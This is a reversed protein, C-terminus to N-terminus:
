IKGELETIRAASEELRQTLDANKDKYKAVETELASIRPELTEIVKQQLIEYNLKLLRIAGELASPLQDDTLSAVGNAYGAIPLLDRYVDAVSQKLDEERQVAAEYDRRLQPLEAALKARASETNDKETGLTALETRLASIRGDKDFAKTKTEALESELKNLKDRLPEVEAQLTLNAAHMETAITNASSVLSRLKDAAAGFTLRRYEARQSDDEAFIDLHDYVRSAGVSETIRKLRETRQAPTFKGFDDRELQDKALNLLADSIATECREIDTKASRYKTTLISTYGRFERLIETLSDLKELESRPKKEIGNGNSIGNSGNTTGTVSDDYSFHQIILSKFGDVAIKYERVIKKLEEKGDDTTFRGGEVNVIRELTDILKGLPLLETHEAILEILKAAVLKYKVLLERHVTETADLQAARAKADEYDHPVVEVTRIVKKGVTNTREAVLLDLYKQVIEAIREPTIVEKIIKSYTNDPNKIYLEAGSTNVIGKPTLIGKKRLISYLMLFIDEGYSEARILKEALVAKEGTLREISAYLDVTPVVVTPAVVSSKIHDNEILNTMYDNVIDKMAQITSSVKDLHRSYSPSTMQMSGYRTLQRQVIAAYVKLDENTLGVIDILSALDIAKNEIVSYHTVRGIKYKDFLEVITDKLTVTLKSWAKGYNKTVEERQKISAKLNTRDRTLKWHEDIAEPHDCRTFFESAIIEWTPGSSSSCFGDLVTRELNNGIRPFPIQLDAM